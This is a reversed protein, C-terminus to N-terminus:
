LEPYESLLKTLKDHKNLINPIFIRDKGNIRQNKIAPRSFDAKRVWNGQILLKGIKFDKSFYDRKLNISAVETDKHKLILSGKSLEYTNEEINELQKIWNQVSGAALLSTIPLTLVIVWAIEPNRGMLLVILMVLNTIIITILSKILKANRIALLYEPLLSKDISFINM